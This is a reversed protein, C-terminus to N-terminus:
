VATLTIAGPMAKETAVVAVDSAPVTMVFNTVGDVGMAASVLEASLVDADIALATIYDAIRAEVEDLVTAAVYGSAITVSATVNILKSTAAYVVVKVGAAKWGPVITGDAETYGYLTQTVENILATSAGDVGNHIYCNVLSIPQLPDAIWPEIINMYQVRETIFGAGDRVASTSIGYRLAANTGRNLSAIYAAFRTKRQADTEEDTGNFFSALASASVFPALAPQLTFSTGAAVNGGAGPTSAEVRVDVYSADAPIVVDSKSVFTTSYGGGPTFLSNAPVFSATASPTVTVRVTGAAPAAPLREFDFSNYIAVPIADKLGYFMQQYLEEIEVAPAELMTRAVSGVNFDTLKTQTSKSFNLMSAVISVFDKIQFAM